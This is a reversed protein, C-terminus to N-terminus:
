DGRDERACLLDLPEVSFPFPVDYAQGNTVLAEGLVASRVPEGPSLVDVKAGAEARNRCRVTALWGGERRECGEVVAVLRRDRAYDQRGPNQTPKGLYFGTSYPRHSVLDLEDRWPLVPDGDLVHRYANTVAAAYYAGKNRGELKICDVGAQRLEGLHDIMCLDNSSLLYSAEGDSELTASVSPDREEGLRWAWRCPQACSGDSASRGPGMLHASLLCRGSYAMCMSGHAFCELELQDTVRRRLEAIQSLTMERGLVVRTAGLRAYEEAARASMVSAQTSVHIAVHPAFERALSIAALDAAIVADVGIDDLLRLFAPLEDVDRDRMVTNVTVHVRVGHRHAYVVARALGEDDFNAARSRMGWRRGALYVSDAGFHIALALQEPGGAPSLLEM